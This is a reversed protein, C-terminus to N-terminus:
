IVSKIENLRRLITKAFVSVKKQTQYDVQEEARIYKRQKPKAGMQEDSVFSGGGLKQAPMSTYRQIAPPLLDYRPKVNWKDVRYSVNESGAVKKTTKSVVLTVVYLHQMDNLVGTLQTKLWKEPENWAEKAKLDQKYRIGAAEELAALVQRGYEQIAEIYALVLADLGKTAWALFNNVSGNYLEFQREKFAKITKNEGKEELGVIIKHYKSGYKQALKKSAANFIYIYGNFGYKGKKAGDEKSQSFAPYNFNEPYLDDMDKQVKAIGEHIKELDTKTLKKGKQGLEVIKEIDDFIDQIAKINRKKSIISAIMSPDVDVKFKDDLPGVKEGKRRRKSREAGERQAEADLRPLKLGKVTAKGKADKFEGAYYLLRQIVYQLDVTEYKWDLKKGGEPVRKTPLIKQEYFTALEDMDLIGQQVTGFNRTVSRTRSYKMDGMGTGGTTEGTEKKTGITEKTIFQFGAEKLKKVKTLDGEVKDENLTFTKTEVKRDRNEKTKEDKKMTDFVKSFYSGYQNTWGKKAYVEKDFDSTIKLKSQLNLKNAADKITSDGVFKLADQFIDDKNGLVKLENIKKSEIEIIATKNINNFETKNFGDKMFEKEENVDAMEEIFEDIESINKQKTTIYDQFIFYLFETKATDENWEASRGTRQYFLKL